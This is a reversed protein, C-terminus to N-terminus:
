GWRQLRNSDGERERRERSRSVWGLCGSGRWPMLSKSLGITDSAGPVQKRVGDGDFSPSLRSEVRGLAGRMPRDYRALGAGGAEVRKWSKPGRM